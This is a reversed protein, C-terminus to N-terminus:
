IFSELIDCKVSMESTYYLGLLTNVCSVEIFLKIFSLVGILRASLAM